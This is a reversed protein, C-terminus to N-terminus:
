ESGNAHGFFATGAKRGDLSGLLQVGNDLLAMPGMAFILVQDARM